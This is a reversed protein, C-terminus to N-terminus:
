NGSDSSNEESLLIEINQDEPDMTDIIFGKELKEVMAERDKRLKSEIEAHMKEIKELKKKNEEELKEKQEEKEWNDFIRSYIFREKDKLKDSEILLINKLKIAEKNDPYFNLLIEINELSKPVEQKLKYALSKRYLAKLNKEDYKLVEGCKELVTDLYKIKQVSSENGEAAIIALQSCNLASRIRLKVWRSQIEEDLIEFGGKPLTMLQFTNNYLTRSDSFKKSSYLRNGDELLIEVADLKEKMALDKPFTHEELFEEIEFRFWLSEEKHDKIM